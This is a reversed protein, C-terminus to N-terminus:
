AMETVIIHIGGNKQMTEVVKAAIGRAPDFNRRVAKDEVLEVAGIMGIGRVEGVLPHDALSRLHAQMVPATKAVQGAIDREEYIKLTELAVACPVPHGSYTYGHGFSGIKASNDAIIQYLRDTLMLASIPLFGASLAKACTLMDPAYNLTESGWRRGTRYFGCIVEDAVMLVDYRRCVEQMRPFYGEPPVIVGGAGMVPEAFFAAVTDPGESLILAELENALRAVFASDDEGPQAQHYAHPCTVHLFRDIPLDFDRNNVALRTMSASAITVGHYAQQRAVIKKKLPRGLANNIYWILKVATDNSESGSNAFLVKGMKVPALEILKAALEIGQDHAKHSFQHYFGLRRLQREAATALRPESFGLSACWLGAMADIYRRGNEEIVHVGDGGTIILPGVAEHRRLQTYPHLTAAIDLDRLRNSAM